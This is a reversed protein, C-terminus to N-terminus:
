LYIVPLINGRFCRGLAGDFRRISVNITERHGTEQLLLENFVTRTFRQLGGLQASTRNGEYGKEEKETAVKSGEFETNDIHRYCTTKAFCM